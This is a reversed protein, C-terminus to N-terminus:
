TCHTFDDKFFNKKKKLIHMEVELLLLLCAVRRRRLNTLPEDDNEAFCFGFSEFLSHEPTPAVHM